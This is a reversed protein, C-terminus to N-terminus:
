MYTYVVNVDDMLVFTPGAWGSCVLDHVMVVHM